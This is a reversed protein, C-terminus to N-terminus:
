KHEKDIQAQRKEFKKGEAKRENHKTQEVM